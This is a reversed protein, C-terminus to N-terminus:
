KLEVPKLVVDWHAEVLEFRRNEEEKFKKQDPYIKAIADAEPRGEVMARWSKFVIVTMFNWDACGDGHFRPVYAEVKLFRGAEIQEKLIPYHNKMFLDIFEEHHGWKVKYYYAVSVPEDVAAQKNPM